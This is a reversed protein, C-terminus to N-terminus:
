EDRWKNLRYIEQKLQDIHDMLYVVVITLAVGWLTLTLMLWFTATM